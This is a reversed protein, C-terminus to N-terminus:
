VRKDTQSGKTDSSSLMTVRAKIEPRKPHLYTFLFTSILIYTISTHSSGELLFSPQVTPIRVNRRAMDGRVIEGPCNERKKIITYSM